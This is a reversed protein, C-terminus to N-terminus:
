KDQFTNFYYEEAVPLTAYCNAWTKRWYQEEITFRIADFMQEKELKLAEEFVEHFKEIHLDKSRWERTVMLETLHKELWQVATQKSM